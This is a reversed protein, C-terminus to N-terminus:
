LGLIWGEEAEVEAVVEPSIGKPPAFAQGLKGQADLREFHECLTRVQARDAVEGPEPTVSVLAPYIECILAEKGALDAPTLAKWGTTFPWVAAREGLTAVLRTVAPIGTLAQGGVSGQGHIQWASKAGAKGRGRTAEETHRFEPLGATHDAPKTKSLTTSADAPRPTGWFPRPGESILRNLRGAMIARNNTNDAKDVVNAALFSWMAQQPTVGEPMKLKAAAATGRPYGLPFDFGVLARDNKRSLDAMVEGLLTEAAARTPPNHAEFTQRFRSDRKSVGIWISDRGTKPAQAASWDIMVYANFLRAM